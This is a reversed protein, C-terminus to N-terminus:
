RQDSQFLATRNQARAVSPTIGTWRRYATSFASQDAFGLLLAVEALSLSPDDLYMACLMQRLEEALGRFTLNEDSLRRRLSRPSLGIDGAVRELTATGRPLHALISAEIRQRSEPAATSRDSLLIDAYSTLHAHLAIDSTQLPLELKAHSLRLVHSTAEFEVECGLLHEIKRALTGRPHSFSIGHPMLHEQTGYRMSQLSATLAFETHQVHHGIRPDYTSLIMETGRNTERLVIDTRPRTVKVYRAAAHVLDGLTPCCLLIYSLVSGGRPDIDLGMRVGALPDGAAHVMADIYRCEDMPTVPDGDKWDTLGAERKARQKQEDDYLKSALMARLWTDPVLEPDIGSM